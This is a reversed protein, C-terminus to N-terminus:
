GAFDFDSIPVAGAIENAPLAARIKELEAKRLHYTSLATAIREADPWETRNIPLLPAGGVSHSQMTLDDPFSVSTGSVTAIRWNKFARAAKDIIASLRKIEAIDARLKQGCATYEALTSPM